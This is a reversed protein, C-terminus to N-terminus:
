MQDSFCSNLNYEILNIFDTNEMWTHVGHGSTTPRYLVFVTLTKTKTKKKPSSKTEEQSKPNRIVINKTKIPHTLPSSYRPPTLPPFFDNFYIM